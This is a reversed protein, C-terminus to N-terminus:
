VLGGSELLLAHTFTVSVVNQDDAATGGPKSCRQMQSRVRLDRYKGLVFEVGTRGVPCLAADRGDGIGHVAFVFVYLVRQVGARTQTALLGDPVHHTMRAFGNSLQDAPSNCEITVAVVEMQGLFATMRETAHQVHGVCGPM